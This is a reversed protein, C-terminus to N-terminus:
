KCIENENIVDLAMFQLELVVAVLGLYDNNIIDVEPVVGSFPFEFSKVTRM